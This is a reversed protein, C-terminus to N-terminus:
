KIKGGAARCPAAAAISGFHETDRVRHLTLRLQAEGSRRM